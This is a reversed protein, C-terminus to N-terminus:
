AYALYELNLAANIDRDMKMGCSKCRFYKNSGIQQRNGCNSCLQSSPYDDPALIFPIGYNKCKYEMIDRAGRFRTGKLKGSTRKTSKMGGSYLNLDEMVIAKPRMRVIETTVTQVFNNEINTLHRYCERLKFRRQQERKSQAIELGPNSKELKKRRDIDHQVKRRLRALRKKPKSKDPEYYIKGNSLVFRKHKNLDIGLARDMQSINNDIFYQSLKNEIVTFSIWYKNLIIDKSIHVKYYKPNDYRSKFLTNYSTKILGLKLSDLGEINLNSGIFYVKNNRTEFTVTKQKKKSKFNPEKKILNHKDYMKFNKIARWIGMKITAYPAEKLFSSENRLQRFKKELDIISPRRKDELDVNYAIEHNKIENVAWNYAYRSLDICRDLFIAQEMNPYIEYKRSIMYYGEPIVINKLM